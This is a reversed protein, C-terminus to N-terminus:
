PRVRANPHSVTDSVPLYERPARDAVPSRGAVYRATRSPLTAEWSLACTASANSSGGSSRFRYAHRRVRWRALVALPLILPNAVRDYALQQYFQVRGGSRQEDSLWRRRGASTTSGAWELGRPLMAAARWAM